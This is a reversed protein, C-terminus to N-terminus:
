MKLKTTNRPFPITLVKSALRRLREDYMDPNNMIDSIKTWKVDQSEDSCFVPETTPVICAFCVDYHLHEGAPHIDIDFVEGNNLLTHNVERNNYAEEFMERIATHVCTENDNDWHGGLQLWKDFKKHHTLLISDCEPNVVVMSAVVHGQTNARANAFEGHVHIFDLLDNLTTSNLQYGNELSSLLQKLYIPKM